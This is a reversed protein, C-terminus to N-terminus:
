VYCILARLLLKLKTSHRNCGLKLTKAIAHKRFIVWKKMNWLAILSFRCCIFNHFNATKWVERPVELRGLIFLILSPRTKEMPESSMSKVRVRWEQSIKIFQLKKHYYKRFYYIHFRMLIRAPPAFNNRTLLRVFSCSSVLLRKECNQSCALFPTKVWGIRHDYEPWTFTGNIQQQTIWVAAPLKPDTRYVLSRCITHNQRQQLV